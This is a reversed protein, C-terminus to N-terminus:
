GRRRRSRESGSTSEWPACCGATEPELVGVWVGRVDERDVREAPLHIRLRPHEPRLPQHPTPLPHRHTGRRGPSILLASSLPPCFHIMRTLASHPTIAHTHQFFSPCTRPTVSSANTRSTMNTSGTECIVDITDTLRDNDCYTHTHHTEEQASSVDEHEGHERSRGGIAAREARWEGGGLWHRSSM